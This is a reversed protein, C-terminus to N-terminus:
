EIKEKMAVAEKHDTVMVTCLTKIDMDLKTSESLLMNQLAILATQIRDLVYFPGKVQRFAQDNDDVFETFIEEIVALTDLMIQSPFLTISKMRNQYESFYEDIVVGNMTMIPVTNNGTVPDITTTTQLRGKTIGM